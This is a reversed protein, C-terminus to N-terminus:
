KSEPYYINPHFVMGECTASILLKIKEKKKEAKVIIKCIHFVNRILLYIYGIIGDQRYMVIDNRYMYRFRELRESNVNTIDAGVNSDCWHNVISEPLMYSIYKKSIRRTYEWDDAWIFFEKYPLGVEKVVNSKLFLSVFSAYQVTQLTDFDRIKKWKTKKQKNMECLNGDKWLVKSSLFGYVGNLECDKKLFEELATPYPMTDDDLIWLYTYGLEVGIKIGYFFGGAGGLNTGTNYYIIDDISDKFLEKTGDNSANDIIIIDLSITQNRLRNICEKLLQRRNYTVVVAAVSNM